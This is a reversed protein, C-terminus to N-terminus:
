LLKYPHGHRREELAVEGETRVLRLLRYAATQSTSLGAREAAEDWKSGEIMGAVLCAKRERREDRDM